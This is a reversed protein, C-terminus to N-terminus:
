WIAKGRYRYVYDGHLPRYRVRGHYRQVGYAPYGPQYYIPAPRYAVSAPQYLAVPPAMYATRPVGYVPAHYYPAGYGGFGGYAPYSPGGLFGIYLGFGGASASSASVLLGAVALVIGCTITKMDFGVKRLSAVKQRRRVM